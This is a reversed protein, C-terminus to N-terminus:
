CDSGSLASEVNRFGLGHNRGLWEPEGATDLICTAWCMPLGHSGFLVLPIVLGPAPHFPWPWGSDGFVGPSSSGEERQSQWLGLIWLAETALSVPSQVLCSLGEGAM